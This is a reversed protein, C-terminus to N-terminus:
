RKQSVTVSVDSFSGEIPADPKHVTTEICLIKPFIKLIRGNIEGALREILDFREEEAIRKVIEYVKAYDVTDALDDSQVASSADFDFVCDIFFRQGKQKEEPLVGHYGYFSMGKLCIKDMEIEWGVIDM